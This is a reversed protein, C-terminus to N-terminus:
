SFGIGFRPQAVPARNAGLGQFPANAIAATM